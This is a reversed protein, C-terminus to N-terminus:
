FEWFGSKAGVLRVPFQGRPRPTFPLGADSPTLETRPIFVKRGANTGSIIEADIVRPAFAGCILRTGKARRSRGGEKATRSFSFYVKPRFRFHGFGDFITMKPASFSFSFSFSNRDTELQTTIYQPQMTNYSANPLSAIGSRRRRLKCSHRRLTISAM